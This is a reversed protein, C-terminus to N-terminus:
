WPSMTSASCMPRWEVCDGHALFEEPDVVPVYSM